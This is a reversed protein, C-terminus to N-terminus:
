QPQEMPSGGVQAVDVYMTVTLEAIDGAEHELSYHVVNKLEEGNLYIKTTGDEFKTITLTKLDM